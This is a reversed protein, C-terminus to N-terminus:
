SAPVLCRGAASVPAFLAPALAPPPANFNSRMMQSAAIMRATNHNPFPNKRKGIM